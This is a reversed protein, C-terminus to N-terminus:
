GAKTGNAPGGLARQRQAQLSLGLKQNVWSVVDRVKTCDFAEAITETTTEVVSAAMALVTKTYGNKNSGMLQKGKGILSELVETSGLLPQEDCQDCQVRVFELVEEVFSCAPEATFDALLAQLEEPTQRQYGHNRIYKLVIAAAALMVTWRAISDAHERLWGMKQELAALDLPAQAAILGDHPDDLFRLIRGSWAILPDLNMWRAKSKLEPPLLFAYPSQRLQTKSRNADSLFQDWAPAGNLQRKIACAVGHAIDHVVATHRDEQQCFSKAGLRVDGGQDSLIVRPTIGTSESLQELQEHVLPGTSSAMRGIAFVSLDRHELAFSAQPDAELAAQRKANWDSLQIGFVVFCKGNGTQITHDIMWVWDDAQPKPRELEYLGIRLLWFQGGNASPFAGEPLLAAM